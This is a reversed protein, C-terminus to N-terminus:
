TQKTVTLETGSETEMGKVSFIGNADIEFTLKVQASGAPAEPIGSLTFSGIYTNEDITDGLGEYVNVAVEKQNDTSTTFTQSANLPITNNAKLVPHFGKEAVEIGYAYGASEMILLDPFDKQKIGALVAAGLVVSDSPSPTLDPNVGFANKAKVVAQGEPMPEEHVAIVTDAKGIANLKEGAGDLWELSESLLDKINETTVSLKAASRSGDKLELNEVTIETKGSTSSQVRLSAAAAWLRDFNPSGESVDIKDNGSLADALVGAVALDTEWLGPGSVGMLQEFVGDGKTVLALSSCTYGFNAVGIEADGQANQHYAGAAAAAPESILRVETFGASEAAELVAARHSAGASGPVTIAAKEFSANLSGEVLDKVEAFFFKVLEAVEYLEGEFNVAAGQNQDVELTICSDALVAQLFQDGKPPFLLGPLNWVANKPDLNRLNEAEEGICFSGQSADFAVTSPISTINPPLNLPMVVGQATVGLKTRLGGFHIGLWGSM